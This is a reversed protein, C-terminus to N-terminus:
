EQELRLAGTNKWHQIGMAYWNIITQTKTDWGNHSGCNYCHVQFEKSANRRIIVNNSGCFPCFLGKEHIIKMPENGKKPIYAM